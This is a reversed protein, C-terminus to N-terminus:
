KGPKAPYSCRGISLECLRSVRDRVMHGSIQLALSQQHSIGLVAIQRQIARIFVRHILQSPMGNSAVNRHTSLMPGSQKM